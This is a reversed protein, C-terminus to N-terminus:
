FTIEEKFKMKREIFFSFFFDPNGQGFFYYPWIQCYTTKFFTLDHFLALYHGFFALKVIFIQYLLQFIKLAECFRTSGGNRFFLGM